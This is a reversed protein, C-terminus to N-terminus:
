PRVDNRTCTSVLSCVEPGIPCLEGNISSSATVKFYRKAVEAGSGGEVAGEGEKCEEEGKKEGQREEGERVMEGEGQRVTEGEGVMEGEGVTEGEGQRM